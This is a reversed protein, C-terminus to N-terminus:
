FGKQYLTVAKKLIRYDRVSTIEKLRRMKLRNGGSTLEEIAEIIKAIYNEEKIKANLNEIEGKIEQDISKKIIYRSTDTLEALKSISIREKNMYLDELILMMDEKLIISKRGILRGVIEMKQDKSLNKSPNFIIKRLRPVYPQKKKDYVRYVMDTVRDQSYTRIIHGAERDSLEIFLSIMLKLDFDPNLYIFKEAIYELESFSNIKRSSRYLHYYPIGEPFYVYPQGNFRVYTEMIIRYQSYKFLPIPKM